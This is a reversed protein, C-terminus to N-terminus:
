GVVYKNDSYNYNYPTTSQNTLGCSRFCICILIITMPGGPLPLVERINRYVRPYKLM